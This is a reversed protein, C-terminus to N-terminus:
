KASGEPAPGAPVVGALAGGKGVGTGTPDEVRGGRHRTPHAQWDTHGRTGVCPCLDLNQSGGHVAQAAAHHPTPAGRTPRRRSHATPRRTCPPHAAERRLSRCHPHVKKEAAPPLVTQPPRTSPPAARVPVALPEVPLTHVPPGRPPPPPPTVGELHLLPPPPLEAQRHRQGNAITAAGLRTVRMPLPAGGTRRHRLPATHSLPAEGGDVVGVARGAAVRRRANLAGYSGVGGPGCPDGTLYGQDRSQAAGNLRQAKKMHYRPCRFEM